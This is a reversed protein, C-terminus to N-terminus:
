RGLNSGRDYGIMSAQDTEFVCDRVKPSVDKSAFLADAVVRTRQHWDTIVDSFHTVLPLLEPHHSQLIKRKAANSLKNLDRSSQLTEGDNNGNKQIEDDNDSLVFDDEEMNEYRANQVEKAAEEELYADDEDQGIELDATDGGFYSSKKRGWDTVAEEEMEDDDDDSSDVPDEDDPEIEVDQISEDGSDIEDEDDSSSVGGALDMVAEKDAYGDDDILEDPQQDLHIYEQEKENHYRDIENYMNDDDGKKKTSVTLERGKYLKKDGTKATKRKKGMAIATFLLVAGLNPTLRISPVVFVHFAEPSFHIM